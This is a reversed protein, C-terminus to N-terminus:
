FSSEARNDINMGSGLFGKPPARPTTLYGDFSFLM